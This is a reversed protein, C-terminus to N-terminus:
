VARATSAKAKSRRHRPRRCWRRAPPPGPRPRGVPRRGTLGLAQHVGHDGPAPAPLKPCARSSRPASTQTAPSGRHGSHGTRRRQRHVADPLAVVGIGGHSRGPHGGGLATERARVPLARPRSTSARRRPGTWRPRTDMTTPQGPSGSRTSRTTAVSTASPSTTVSREPRRSSGQRGPGRGQPGSRNSPGPKSGGAGRHSRPPGRWRTPPPRVETGPRSPAVRLGPGLGPGPLDLGLRVPVAGHRADVPHRDM